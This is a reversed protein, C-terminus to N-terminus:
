RVVLDHMRRQRGDGLVWHVGVTRDGVIHQSANRSNRFAILLEQAADIRESASELADDRDDPGADVQNQFRLVERQELADVFRGFALHDELVSNFAQRHDHDGIIQRPQRTVNEFSKGFETPELIHIKGRRDKDGDRDPKGKGDRCEAFFIQVLFQYAFFKGLLSVFRLFLEFWYILDLSGQRLSKIKSQDRVKVDIWGSNEGKVEERYESM